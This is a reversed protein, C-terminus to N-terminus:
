SASSIRADILALAVGDAAAARGIDALVPEGHQRIPAEVADVALLRGILAHLDVREALLSSVLIGNPRPLFPHGAFVTQQAVAVGRAIMGTHQHSVPDIGGGIKEFAAADIGRRHQRDELAPGLRMAREGLRRGLDLRLVALGQGLDLQKSGHKIGAPQEAGAGIVPVVHLFHGLRLAARHVARLPGALGPEEELGRRMRDDPRARGRM